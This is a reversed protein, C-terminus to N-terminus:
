STREPEDSAGLYSEHLLSVDDNLQAATGSLAITGHRLVYARDAIALGLHVHQEVLLVGAGTEDAINRLIPLLRQVVIPALGFSLEDILLLRPERVLARAIALMQQQGGSLLGAATGRRDRLEPFLDLPDGAQRRSRSALQLNERVTLKPFLGRDDPICSVGRRAIRPAPWGQIRDDDLLVEGGLAPLSGALTLLTTTKGAGNAGLLAVVEGSDVHLDLDRVVVSSGYGCCLARADLLHASV